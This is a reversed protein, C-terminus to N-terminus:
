AFCSAYDPMANLGADQPLSHSLIMVSSFPSMSFVIRLLFLVISKSVIVNFIAYSLLNKNLDILRTSFVYEASNENIKLLYHTFPKKKFLQHAKQMGGGIFFNHLYM